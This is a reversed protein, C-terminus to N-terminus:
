TAGEGTQLILLFAKRQLGNMSIKNVVLSHFHVYIQMKNHFKKRKKTLWASIGVMNPSLQTQENKNSDTKM